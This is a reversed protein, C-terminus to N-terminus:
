VTSNMGYERVDSYGFSVKHRLKGYEGEDDFDWVFEHGRPITAGNVEVQDSAVQYVTQFPVRYWYGNERIKGQKLLGKVTNDYAHEADGLRHREWLSVLEQEVQSEEKANRIDSIALRSTVKWPDENDLASRRASHSPLVSGDELGQAILLCHALVKWYQEEAEEHSRAPVRQGATISGVMSDGTEKRTRAEEYLLLIEQHEEPHARVRNIRDSLREMAADTARRLGALHSLPCTGRFHPRQGMQVPLVVSSSNPAIAEQRAAILLDPIKGFWDEALAHTVESVTRLAREDSLGEMPLLANAIVQFYEATHLLLHARSNDVSVLEVKVQYVEDGVRRYGELHEPPDAESGTLARHLRELFGM